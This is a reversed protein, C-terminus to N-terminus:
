IAKANEVELSDENRVEKDVLSLFKILPEEKRQFLQQVFPSDQHRQIVNGVYVFLEKNTLFLTTGDLLEVTTRGTVHNNESSRENSVWSAIKLSTLIYNAYTKVYDIPSVLAPIKYKEYLEQEKEKNGNAQSMEILYLSRLISYRHMGNGNITYRGNPADALKMPEELFSPMLSEMVNEATLDLMSLSRTHYGDTERSDFFKPFLKLLNNGNNMYDYSYGVVDAISVTEKEEDKSIRYRHLLPDIDEQSVVLLNSTQELEEYTIGNRILFRATDYSVSTKTMDIKEELRKLAEEKRRAMEEKKKIEEQKKLIKLKRAKEAQTSAQKLIQLTAEKTCGDRILVEKFLNRIFYDFEGTTCIYTTLARTITRRDILPTNQLKLTELFDDFTEDNYLMGSDLISERSAEIKEISCPIDFLDAFEAITM